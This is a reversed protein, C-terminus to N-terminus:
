IRGKHTLSTSDSCSIKYSFDPWPLSSEKIPLPEQYPGPFNLNFLQLCPSGSRDKPLLFSFSHNSCYRLMPCTQHLDTNGPYGPALWRTRKRNSHPTFHWFLDEPTKQFHGKSDKFLAYLSKGRQIHWHWLADQARSDCEPFDTIAERGRYWRCIEIGCWHNSPFRGTLALHVTHSLVQPLTRRKCSQRQRQHLAMTLQIFMIM